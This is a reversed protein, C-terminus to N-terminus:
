SVVGGHAAVRWSHGLGNNSDLWVKRRFLQPEDSREVLEGCGTWRTAGRVGVREEPAQCGALPRDQHVLVDVMVKALETDLPVEARGATDWPSNDACM